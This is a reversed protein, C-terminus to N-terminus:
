DVVYLVSRPQIGCRDFVPEGFHDIGLEHINFGAERLRERFGRKSYLRVHDHQGFHTWRDAETQLTGNEYTAELSLNVPVMVIGRGGPALIRRLETLAARDDDIHELVHMCVFMDVSRDAYVSMNTLDVVDDAEPNHLDASRYTVPCERLFQSLAPTPAFDILSIRERTGPRVGASFFIQKCYLACLRERDTARCHPCSFRRVNLTEEAFISHRYQHRDWEAFYYDPLPDFRALGTGCVPCAFRNGLYNAAQITSKLSTKLPQPLLRKAIWLARAAALRGTV